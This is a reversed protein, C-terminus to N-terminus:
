PPLPRLPITTRASTRDPDYFDWTGYWDRVLEFLPGDVAAPILDGWRAREAHDAWQGQVYLRVPLDILSRPRRLRLSILDDDQAPEGAVVEWLTEGRDALLYRRGVPPIMPTAGPAYDLLHSLLWAKRSRSKRPLDGSILEVAVMQREALDVIRGVHSTTGSDGSSDDAIEIWQGRRLRREHRHDAEHDVTLKVGSECSPMSSYLNPIWRHIQKDHSQDHLWPNM